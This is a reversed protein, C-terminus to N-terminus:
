GAPSVRLQLENLVGGGALAARQNGRMEVTLASRRRSAVFTEM